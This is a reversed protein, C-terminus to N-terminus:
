ALFGPDLIKAQAGCFPAASRRVLRRILFPICLFSMMRNCARERGFAATSSFTLAKMAYQMKLCSTLLWPDAASYENKLYSSIM